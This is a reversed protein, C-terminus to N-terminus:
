PRRRRPSLTFRVHCISGSTGTHLCGRASPRTPRRLTVRDQGRRHPHEATRPVCARADIRDGGLGADRRARDVLVELALLLQEGDRELRARRPDGVPEDGVDFREDGRLEGDFVLEDRQALQEDALRDPERLVERHNALDVGLGLVKGLLHQLTPTGRARPSHLLRDSLRSVAIAAAPASRKASAPRAADCNM